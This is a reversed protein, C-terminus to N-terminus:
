YRDDNDKGEAWKMRAIEEPTAVDIDQLVCEERMGEILRSFEQQTMRASSKYVKIIRREEGDQYDMALVDYYKFYDDPPVNLALSMVDCVGYERLMNKHVESDSMGLARALKNLMLWYYANQTISRRRKVEKVEFRKAIDCEQLYRICEYPTGIM